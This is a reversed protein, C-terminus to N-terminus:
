VDKCFLCNPDRNIIINDVLYQDFLLEGRGSEASQDGYMFYRLIKMAAASASFVSLSCLGGFGSTRDEIPHIVPNWDKLAKKFYNAYCDACPTVGPIIIESLSGLHADFGGSVLLPIRRPVCYRSLSISTYGIYPEDAANVILSVKQDFIEELKTQITLPKEYSIASVGHFERRIYDAVWTAKNQGVASTQFFAHRTIDAQDFFAHDILTFNRFGLSLLLRLIWSGIAGVGFIAIDATSMKNQVSIVKESSGLLDLLFHFQKQQTKIINLPIGSKELWDEEVVIGRSLLYELFSLFSEASEYPNESLFRNNLEEVSSTGDLWAISKILPKTAKVVIRKRSALFVFHLEDDRLYVDIGDMLYPHFTEYNRMINSASRKTSFKAM